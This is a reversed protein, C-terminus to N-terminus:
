GSGPNLLKPHPSSAIQTKFLGKPSEPALQPEGVFHTVNALEEPILPVQTEKSTHTHTHTGLSGVILSTM